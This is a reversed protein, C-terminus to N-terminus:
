IGRSQEEFGKEMAEVNKQRLEVLAPGTWRKIGEEVSVGLNKCMKRCESEMTSHPWEDVNLWGEGM